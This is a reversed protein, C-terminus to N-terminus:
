AATDKFVLNCNVCRVFGTPLADGNPKLPSPNIHLCDDPSLPTSVGEGLAAGVGESKEVAATQTPLGEDGQGSPQATSDKPLMALKSLQWNLWVEAEEVSASQMVATNIAKAHTTFRVGEESNYWTGKGGTNGPEYPAPEYGPFSKIKYKPQGKGNLKGTDELGFESATGKLTELQMRLDDAKAQDKKGLSGTTDDTFSVNVYYTTGKTGEYANVEPAVWSVTKTTM